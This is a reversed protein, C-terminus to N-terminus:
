GTIAYFATYATSPTNITQNSCTPVITSTENPNVTYYANNNGYCYQAQVKSTGVALLMCVTLLFYFAFSFGKQKFSGGRYMAKRLWTIKLYGPIQSIFDFLPLKLNKRQNNALQLLYFSYSMYLKIFFM